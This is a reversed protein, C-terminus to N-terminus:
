VSSREEEVVQYEEDDFDAVDVVHENERRHNFRALVFDRPIDIRWVQGTLGGRIGDFRRAFWRATDLDSTWSMGARRDPIAGRYLTVIEPLDEDRDRQQHDVLYGVTDFLVYWGDGTIHQEPWEAGTWAQGVAEALDDISLDAWVDALIGPLDNRGMRASVESWSVDGRM